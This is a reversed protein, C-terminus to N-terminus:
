FFVTFVHWLSYFLHFFYMTWKEMKVTPGECQPSPVCPIVQSVWCQWREIAERPGQSRRPHSFLRGAKTNWSWAGSGSGSYDGACITLNLNSLCPSFLRQSIHEVVRWRSNSLYAKPWRSLPTVLQGKSVPQYLFEQYAQQLRAAVRVRISCQLVM